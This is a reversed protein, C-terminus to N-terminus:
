NETLGEGGGMGDGTAHIVVCRADRRSCMCCSEYHARIQHLPQRCDAVDYAHVAHRCYYFNFVMIRVSPLSARMEVFAFPFNFWVAYTRGSPHLTHLAHM